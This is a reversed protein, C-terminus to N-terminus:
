VNRVLLSVSPEHVHLQLRPSELCSAPITYIRIYLALNQFICRADHLYRSESVHLQCRPSESAVVDTCLGHRIDHLNQFMASIDHLNHVSTTTIRVCPASRTSFTFQHRPSESVHLQDRPSQSSIDHLNHVSTRSIRVCPAPM